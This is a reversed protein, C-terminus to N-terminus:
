EERNGFLPPQPAIYFRVNRSTGPIKTQHSRRWGAHVLCARVSLQDSRNLAHRPKGLAHLLIDTITARGLGSDFPEVLSRAGNEWRECQVPCELWRLILEDNPGPLYRSEQEEALATRFEDFDDWWPSGELYAAYAEAWLQDRDERLRALDIPGCTVPWYRRGGTEDTLPVADNTTAAFVNSRPVWQARREYPARFNDACATLFAKRELESRRSVFEGLEIIWKGHLEIRSDKSGLDSLHDSFWEPGALVELATSKGIGQPGECLLVHDAKCGPRMIRAVGSILWREGISKNLPTPKAGLYIIVWERLRSEQDWRLSSLYDKVPHYPHERAVTQVAEAATKSNVLVGQQQLWCACRADDEDSWNKGAISQPWPAPKLAVVYLSFENFGLVSRWESSHRLMLVANALLAKPKGSEGVIIQHRWSLDRAKYEFLACVNGWGKDSCSDHFCHFVVGSPYDFVAADRHPEYFPCNELVIKVGVETTGHYPNEVSKIKLGFKELLELVGSATKSSGPNTSPTPEPDPCNCAGHNGDPGLDGNKLSEYIAQVDCVRLEAPTGEFRVGTVTGYRGRWYMELATGDSFEVRKGPGTFSGLLWFHLGDGSPSRETYTNLKQIFASVWPCEIAGTVPDLCHDIDVFTVGSSEVAFGIGDHFFGNGLGAVTSSFTSWTEPNTSSAKRNETVMRPVKTPKGDKGTEARWYLWHALAQMTHPIGDPNVKLFVKM